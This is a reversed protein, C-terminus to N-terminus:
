WIKLVWRKGFLELQEGQEQERWAGITSVAVNWTLVISLGHFILRATWLGVGEFLLESLTGLCLSIVASFYFLAVFAPLRIRSSSFIIAFTSVAILLEAAVYASVFAVSIWGILDAQSTVM